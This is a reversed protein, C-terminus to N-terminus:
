VVYNKKVKKIYKKKRKQLEKEDIIDGSICKKLKDSNFLSQAM